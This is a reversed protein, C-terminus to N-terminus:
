VLVVTFKVQFPMALYNEFLLIQFAQSISSNPIKIEVVGKILDSSVIDSNYPISDYEGTGYPGDTYLGAGRLSVHQLDDVTIDQGGAGYLFRAIRRKLWVLSMQYGDGLYLHWTLVRKYIDDSVLSSTGSQKKISANYVGVDYSVTDYEGSISNKVTSLYPRSIGYIGTACWDLLTGSISQNTYIALPTQNFWDLYSQTLSNYSNVFAQLDDDDAYQQYLYSPMISALPTTNFSETIM